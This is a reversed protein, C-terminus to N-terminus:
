HNGQRHRDRSERCFKLEEACADTAATNNNMAITNKEVIVALDQAIKHQDNVIRMLSEHYQQRGSAHENTLRETQKLFYRMVAIAFVGLILLASIFLARDSHAAAETAIRLLEM